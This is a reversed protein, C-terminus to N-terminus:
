QIVLKQRFSKNLDDHLVVIYTGPTNLQGKFLSADSIEKQLVLQGMQNYVSVMSPDFNSDWTIEFEGTSPSPYVTISKSDIEDLSALSSSSFVYDKFNNCLRAADGSEGHVIVGNDVSISELGKAYDAFIEIEETNGVTTSSTMVSTEHYNGDGLGHLEIKQNFQDGGWGELAIFRYGATWGWHMSPAKPGLPHATSYLTPDEHNTPTHVGVHFKIGEINTVNFNGLYMNQADNARVLFVVSDDVVTETGGDHVITFRTLYYEMRILQFQDGSNNQATQNFAFPQGQIEHTIKLEVDTQANLMLGILAFSIFLYTKM